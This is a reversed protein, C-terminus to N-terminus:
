KNIFLFGADSINKEPITYVDFRDKCFDEVAKEVGYARNLYDHGAMVGGKVLKPLWEHLDTYVSEYDHGADLYVLGLSNDPVEETMESSLGRLFVVNSFSALREKAEKYNKDHWSQPFNGDGTKHQITAWNDVLYLKEAGLNLLELSFRGEAVGIEAVIKPLKLKELLEILQTRHKIM